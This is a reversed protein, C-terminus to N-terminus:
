YHDIYIQEDNCKGKRSFIYKYFNFINQLVTLLKMIFSFLISLSIQSKLLIDFYFRYKFFGIDLSFINKISYNKSKFYNYNTNNDFHHSLKKM